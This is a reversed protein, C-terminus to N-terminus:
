SREALLHKIASERSLYEWDDGFFAIWRLRPDPPNGRWGPDRECTLGATALTERAVAFTGTYYTFQGLELARKEMTDIINVVLAEVGLHRQAGGVMELIAEPAFTYPGSASGPGGGATDVGAVEPEQVRYSGEEGNYEWTVECLPCPPYTLPALRVPSIPTGDEPCFM